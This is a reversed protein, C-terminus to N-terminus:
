TGSPSTLYDASLKRAASASDRGSPEVVDKHLRAQALVRHAEALAEAAGYPVEWAALSARLEAELMAASPYREEPRRRLLRRLISRLPPFVERTLAEVDEPRYTAAQLIYDDVLEPLQAAVSTTLAAVVQARAEPSTLAVELEESRMSDTDYLGKWTALELMVLGLSFLDARADVPEGLLVEPAAYYAEGQPRPLSTPVRGPLRSRARAFDAVSVRGTPRLFLSAPSVDRHIIGLPRGREDARTHAHHLASAVEAGVYLAFAASLARGRMMAAAVFTDLRPGSLRESIVYLAGQAECRGLIRPINPHNLYSALRAEEELRARIRELAEPEHLASSPPLCRVVVHRGPGARTREQALLVREGHTTTELDRLLEYSVPGQSFLIRGRAAAM